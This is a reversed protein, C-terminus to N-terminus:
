GDIALTSLGKLASGGHLPTLQSAHANQTISLYLVLVTTIFVDAAMTSNASVSYCLMVKLNKVESKCDDDNDDCESSVRVVQRARRQWTTDM